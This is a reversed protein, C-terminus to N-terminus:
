DKGPARKNKWSLFSAEKDDDGAARRTPRVRRGEDVPVAALGLALRRARCGGEIEPWWQKLARLLHLERVGRPNLWKLLADMSEPTDYVAWANPALRGEGEEKARRDELHEPTPTLEPHSEVTAARTLELELDDAGQLYLRGTGWQIKGGSTAYLPASGLGDVWWARNGFRDTGLPRARLAYFFRRFDLELQKLQADLEAEEDQLKKKEAALQKMEVKKAKLEEREKAAKAARMAEEAEREAAKEKM